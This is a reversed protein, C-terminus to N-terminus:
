GGSGDLRKIWISEFLVGPIDFAEDIAQRVSSWCYDHVCILKKAKPLWTNIDKKVEEYSHDGDIFVMDVSKEEFQVAAELSYAKIIKLNKFYGVNQKFIKFIDHEKAEIQGDDNKSGLWHDIAWVTGPCGSLLAHTSRGKWSGVEVITEMEKATSYLWQLELDSIWGMINNTYNM